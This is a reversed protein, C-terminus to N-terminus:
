NFFNIYSSKIKVAFSKFGVALLNEVLYTRCERPVKWALKVCITWSRYFQNAKEGYLDWQTSGYADGAYVPVAQLVNTPDAFSFMERISTSKDIFSIRKLNADHETKTDECLFNGLHVADHVFPLPKGYLTVPSPYNINSKKGNMYLCKTKSKTPNPGTSFVAM